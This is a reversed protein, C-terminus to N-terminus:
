GIELEVIEGNKPVLEWVKGIPVGQFYARIVALAFGHSVIAVTQGPHASLIDQVAALVRERVQLATEGGPPAVELPNERRQRFEDAYRSQIESIVLGQWEGQDIERLRQDVRVELGQARALPEATQETRRLDSVYIADIKEGALSRAIEEAQAHGRSNLPVDAHGQWRGEANWDTEGHRILILRTM